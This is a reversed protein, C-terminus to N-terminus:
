TQITVNESAAWAGLRDLVWAPEDLTVDHGAEPHVFIPSGLAQALRQSCSPHVLADRAGALVLTPIALPKVLPRFRQAALLQRALTRRSVPRAEAALTWAPLAAQQAGQNASTIALTLQERLGASRARAIQVFTRLAGPRLRRWPPSLSGVSGSLLALGAVDQPFQLAWSLAVMSGLSLGVLWLRRARVEPDLSARVAQAIEPISAPSTASLRAGTGPLDPTSLSWGPFRAALESPLDGWHSAERGLGRLLVWAAETSM